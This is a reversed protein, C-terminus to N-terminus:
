DIGRARNAVNPTRLRKFVLGLASLALFFASVSPEPVIIMELNEDIYTQIECQYNPLYTFGSIETAGNNISGIFWNVGVMTLNGGVVVMVPAGSDGLGFYVKM